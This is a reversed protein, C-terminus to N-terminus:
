HYLVSPMGQKTAINVGNIPDRIGTTGQVQTPAKLVHLGYGLATAVQLRPDSMEPSRERSATAVIVPVVTLHM